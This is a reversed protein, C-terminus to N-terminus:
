AATRAPWTSARCWRELKAAELPPSVYYGQVSDVGLARLRGLAREDEVGEAVVRLGLAHALDVTARVVADDREEVIFARDIKVEDAHLQRLYGISSYGSGFDDISVRVGLARLRAVTEAAREADAVLASETIELTLTAPPVDWKALLEAVMAALQADLVNRMSLNVAVQLALGRSRWEHSQRLAADLVWASLARIRGTREALPVFESPALLGRSPHRWRVLAEVGLVELSRLGVVPQYLLALEDREIGAGLEALLTFRESGDEEHAREYVAFSALATKASYMALDAHRLLEDADAGHEPYLAIGVSGGVVIDQQQVAFPQELARLVRAALEKARGEDAGPVVIAFEDGGLRAVTDAARVTAGLRRAIERLAADGVHHGFTDNVHKFGDLDLFLLALRDGGRQALALAHALRDHLLTRNPLETLSDYLALHEVRQRAAHAADRSHRLQDALVVVLAAVGYIFPLQVLIEQPPVAAGLSALISAGFAAVLWGVARRRRALFAEFVLLVAAAHGFALPEAVFGALLALALLLEVAVHLASGRVMGM